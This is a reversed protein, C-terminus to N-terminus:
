ILFKQIISATVHFSNANDTFIVGEVQPMLLLDVPYFRFKSRVTGDDAGHAAVEDLPAHGGNQVLGQPCLGSNEAASVQNQLEGNGASQGRRFPKGGAAHLKQGLQTIGQAEARLVCVTLGQKGGCFGQETIVERGLEALFQIGALGERGGSLRSQFSHPKGSIKKRKGIVNQSHFVALGNQGLIRGHDRKGDVSGSVVVRLSHIWFVGGGGRHPIQHEDGM